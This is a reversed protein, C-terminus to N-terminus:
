PKFPKPKLLWRPPRGTRDDLVGRTEGILWDEARARAANANQPLAKASLRLYHAYDVTAVRWKELWPIAKWKTDNDLENGPANEILAQYVDGTGTEDWVQAGQAYQETSVVVRGTWQPVPLRYLAFVTDRSKTMKQGLNTSVFEVPLADQDERPDATWLSVWEASQTKAKAVTLGDIFETVQVGELTEPFTFDPLAERWIWMAAQNLKNVLSPKENASLIVPGELPDPNMDLSAAFDWLLRKFSILSPDSM